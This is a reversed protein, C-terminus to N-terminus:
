SSHSHSHSHPRDRMQCPACSCADGCGGCPKKPKVPWSELTQASRCHGGERWAHECHAVVTAPARLEYLAGQQHPLPERGAMRACHIAGRPTLLRWGDGLPVITYTSTASLNALAQSDVYHRGRIWYSSGKM